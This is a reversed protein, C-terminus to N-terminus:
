ENEPGKLDAEELSSKEPICIPSYNSICSIEGILILIFILPKISQNM